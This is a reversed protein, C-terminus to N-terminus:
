ECPPYSACGLEDDTPDVGCVGFPEPLDGTTGFLHGLLAIPDAVNVTGDDNADAADLCPLAPASSFLAHLIFIADAINRSGDLNAEGRDFAAACGGSEFAGMDVGDGCPRRNGDIDVPPAGEATGADICPSDQMLHYDGAVWVGDSGNVDWRGPRVFLPDLGTNGEGPWLPDGEVCSYTVDAEGNGNRIAGGLNGWIITNTLRSLSAGEAALGGGEVAANGTVTCANLVPASNVVYGGGGSVDAKNGDIITGTLVLSSDECYVGGGYGGV